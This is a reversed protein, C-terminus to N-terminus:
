DKLIATFSTEGTAILRRIYPRCLSCGSTCKTQDTLKNLIEQESTIGNTKLQEVIPSLDRFRVQHCVCRDITM